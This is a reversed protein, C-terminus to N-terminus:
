NSRRFKKRKGGPKFLLENYEIKLSGNEGTLNNGPNNEIEISIFLM